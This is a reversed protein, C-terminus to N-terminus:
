DAAKSYSIDDIIDYGFAGRRYQIGVKEGAPTNYLDPDDILMSRREEPLMVITYYYSLDYRGHAEHRLKRATVIGDTAIVMREAFLRNLGDFVDILVLTILFGVTWGVIIPLFAVKLIDKLRSQSRIFVWLFLLMFAIPLMLLVWDPVVYITRKHLDIFYVGLPLWIPASLVWYAWEPLRRYWPRRNMTRAMRRRKPAIRNDGLMLRRGVSNLLSHVKLRVCGLLNRKRCWRLIYTYSDEFLGSRYMCKHKSKRASKIISEADKVRGNHILAMIYLLRDPDHYMKDEEPYFSDADPNSQLFAGIQDSADKFIRLIIGRIEEPSYERGDGFASFHGIIQGSLAYAGTGRLSLPAKNNEAADWINWWLEDAYMPKVTLYVESWSFTLCFFYGDSVKFNIYASQRFGYERGVARRTDAVLKKLEKVTM